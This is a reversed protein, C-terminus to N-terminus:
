NGRLRPRPVPKPLRPLPRLARGKRKGQLVQVGDEFSSIVGRWEGWGFVRRRPSRPYIKSCCHLYEHLVALLNSVHNPGFIARANAAVPWRAQLRAVARSYESVIPQVVTGRRGIPIPAFLM